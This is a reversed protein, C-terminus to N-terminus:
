LWYVDCASETPDTCYLWQGAWTIFDLIDVYCDSNFDMTLVVGGPDTCDTIPSLSEIGNAMIDQVQSSVVAGDLWAYEDMYGMWFDGGGGASFGGERGILAPVSTVDTQTEDYVKVGDVYARIRGADFAIAYHVWTDTPIPDLVVDAVNPDGAGLLTFHFNATTADQYFVFEGGEDGWQNHTYALIGRTNDTAASGDSWVWFMWSMQDGGVTPTAVQGLTVGTGPSQLSQTSPGMPPLNVDSWLAAHQYLTSGHPGLDLYENLTFGNIFSLTGAAPEPPMEASVTQVGFLMAIAFLTIFLKAKM